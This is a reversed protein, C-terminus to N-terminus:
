ASRSLSLFSNRRWIGSGHYLQFQWYERPTPKITFQHYLQLFHRNECKAPSTVCAMVGGNIKWRNKDDKKHKWRRSRVLFTKLHWLWARKHSMLCCKWNWSSSVFSKPFHSLQFQSCLKCFWYRNTRSILNVERSQGVVM